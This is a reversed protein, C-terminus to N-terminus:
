ISLMTDMIEEGSLRRAAMKWLLRNGPDVEALRDDQRDLSAQQWTASLLIRRHLQKLSWGDEMFRKALWDLLAPHSPVEGLHGFDSTTAVIGTGFHQQWIRNVIVRATLPNQPSAIWEALATRRGTTQLEMPPAVIQAPAPDFLEPFGPEIPTQNTDGEIYTAPATSGVDTAVFALTPLPEPKLSDFKALETLLTQRRSETAEDLWEPLKEPNTKFQRSALDAIQHEYATRESIRKDIMARIKPIFREAGEGTAHKLLVPYEIAHLEKRIADTAQEWKQQQHFHSIKTKADAVPLAEVPMFPAFFAKFRYYDTQLLPDFKHNHCKACKLGTALFVDATTETLDSLIEHWQTEVDRQNYEYIWHRLFMTAILADRNGPDLEDGALQECIFQDYPKDANFSRIVYDRYLHAHPRDADARYGDSDAYRVLDLWFRAQHEGYAPSDLLRDVLDALSKQGVLFDAVDDPTPPLGTIAYHIRRALTRRDAPASPALQAAELRALVFHDIENQCWELTEVSPVPLDQLPQYAWWNRDQPSIANAPKLVVGNPWVAGAQIWDELKRIVNDAVAPEDPPMEFDVHRLASILLSQNADHPVVAPGSDGGVAVAEWSDLRLGSEQKTAGHCGVCKGTLLPRVHQEFWDVSDPSDARAATARGVILCLCAFLVIRQPQRRNRHM